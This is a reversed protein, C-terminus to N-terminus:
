RIRNWRIAAAIERAYGPGTASYADFAARLADTHATEGTFRAVTAGTPTHIVRARMGDPTSEARYDGLQEDTRYTTSM